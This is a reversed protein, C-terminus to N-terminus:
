CYVTRVRSVLGVEGNAVVVLVLDLLILAAYVEFQNVQGKSANAVNNVMHYPMSMQLIVAHIIILTIIQGNNQLNDALTGLRNIMWVEITEFGAMM